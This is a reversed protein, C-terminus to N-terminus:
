AAAAAGVMAVQLAEPTTTSPGSVEENVMGCYACSVDHGRM